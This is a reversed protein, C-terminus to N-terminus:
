SVTGGSRGFKGGPGADGAAVSNPKPKTKMPASRDDLTSGGSRGTNVGGRNNERGYKRGENGSGNNAQRTNSNGNFNRSNRETMDATPEM